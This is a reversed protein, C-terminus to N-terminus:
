AEHNGGNRRAAQAGAQAGICVQFNRVANVLEAMAVQDPDAGIWAASRAAMGELEASVVGPGADWGARLNLNLTWLDCIQMALSTLVPRFVLAVAAADRTDRKLFRALADRFLGIYAPLYRSLAKLETPPAGAAPDAGPAAPPAAGEPPTAPKAGPVLDKLNVMNVPALYVDGQPGIPNVGLDELIANVSYFGWQRGLSYGQMTTQFDGRLRERVDFQVFFKGANRGIHPMLKRHIEQEFKSVYPRLTDTVFQLSQQEHNSSSLRSTDGAM